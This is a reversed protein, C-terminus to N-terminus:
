CLNRRFLSLVREWHREASARDYVQPRQEFQFGHQVGPYWEVRANAGVATLHAELAEIMSTPAYDDFEARAFYLEGTVAAALHAPSGEGFLRVGNVVAAARVRDPFLGATAFAFPGGMGYGVCGVRRGDAEATADLHAFLAQTDHAVRDVTLSAMLELMRPVAGPAGLDMEEERTSRYYLNPLAVYYGATALRRAMAHLEDRQGVADMYVIVAPFPGEGDPCTVFTPM